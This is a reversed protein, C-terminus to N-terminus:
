KPVMFEKRYRDSRLVKLLADVFPREVDIHGDEVTQFFRCGVIDTVLDNVEKPWTIVSHNGNASTSAIQEKLHGIILAFTKISFESLGKISIAKELEETLPLLMYRPITVTQEYM